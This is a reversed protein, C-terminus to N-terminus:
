PVCCAVCAGPTARAPELLSCDCPGAPTAQAAFHASAAQRCASEQRRGVRHSAYAQAIPRGRRTRTERTARAAGDPGGTTAAPVRATRTRQAEHLPLGCTRISGCGAGQRRRIAPGPRSRRAQARGFNVGSRAAGAQRTSLAPADPLKRPFNVPQGEQQLHQDSFTELIRARV